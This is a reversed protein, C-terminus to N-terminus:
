DWRVLRCTYIFAVAPVVKPRDSESQRIGKAANTIKRQAEQGHTLCSPFNHHWPPEVKMPQANTSPTVLHRPTRGLKSFCTGLAQGSCSQDMFATYCFFIPFWYIGFMSFKHLINHCMRWHQKLIINAFFKVYIFEKYLWHKHYLMLWFITCANQVVYKLRELYARFYLPFLNM